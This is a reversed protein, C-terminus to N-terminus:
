YNLGFLVHHHQIVVVRVKSTARAAMWFSDKYEKGSWKLKFNAWIHRVCFRIEAKPVVMSLADLLGQM